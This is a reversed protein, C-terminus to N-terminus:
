VQEAVAETTLGPPRCTTELLAPGGGAQIQAIESPDCAPLAAFRESAQKSLETAFTEKYPAVDIAFTPKDTKGQLWAYNGDLFKNTSEELFQPTFTAKAAKGIAVNSSTEPNSGAQEAQQQTAYNLFSEYFNSEKLWTKVNDPKGFTQTASLAFVGGVLSFFLVVSLFHVLSKRLWIM